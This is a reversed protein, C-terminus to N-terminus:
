QKTRPIMKFDMYVNFTLVFLSVKEVSETKLV